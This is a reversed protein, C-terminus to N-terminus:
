QVIFTAVFLMLLCILFFYSFITLTNIITVIFSNKPNKIIILKFMNNRNESSKDFFVALFSRTSLNNIERYYYDFFVSRLALLFGSIITSFIILFNM